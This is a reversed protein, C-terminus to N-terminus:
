ALKLLSRNHKCSLSKCNESMLANTGCLSWFLPVASKYFCSCYDYTGIRYAIFDAIPFADAFLAVSSISFSPFYLFIYSSFMLLLSTHHSCGESPRGTFLVGINLGNVMMTCPNSQVDAHKEHYRPYDYM